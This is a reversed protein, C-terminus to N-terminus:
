QHKIVKRMLSHLKMLHNNNKKQSLFYIINMLEFRYLVDNCYLNLIALFLFSSDAFLNMADMNIAYFPLNCIGVFILTNVTNLHGFYDHKRIQLTSLVLTM